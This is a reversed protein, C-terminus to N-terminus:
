AYHAPAVFFIQACVCCLVFASIFNMIASKDVLTMHTNRKECKQPLRQAKTLSYKKADENVRPRKSELRQRQRQREKERNVVM